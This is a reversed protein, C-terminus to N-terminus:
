VRLFFARRFRVDITEKIEPCDWFVGKRPSIAKGRWGGAFKVTGQRKEPRDAGRRGGDPPAQIRRALPSFPFIFISSGSGGGLTAFEAGPWGV